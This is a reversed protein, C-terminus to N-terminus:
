VKFRKVLDRVKGAMKVMNQTNDRIITSKEFMGEAQKTAEISNEAMHKVSETTEAVNSNVEQVGNSAQAINDAIERTTTSQEEIASAIASVSENVKDIIGTTNQINNVTTSTSQQIGDIKAKIESTANATQIALEKIENAVVAFGKGAEGARAAEITANLALLNTQESIENIVDTVKGIEQVSLGLDQVQQSAAQIQAVAKSSISNASDTNQGIENITATMEEAATSVTSLNVSSQEMAAAISSINDNVSESIHAIDKNEKSVLEADKTMQLSLQGLESSSNNITVISDAIEKILIQLKEMFINFWKALDGLEDKSQIKLRRTLDGEGEAIDKLGDVVTNVIRVFSSAFWYIFPIVIILCAIFVGILMMTLQRTNAMAVAKSENESIWGTLKEGDFLPMVEQFYAKGAINIDNILPKSNKIPEIDKPLIIKNYDSLTGAAKLGNALFINIDMDALHAMRNTFDNGLIQYALVKGCIIKETKHLKPNYKNAFIPVITKICISKNIPTFSVIKAPLEPKQIREMLYPLPKKDTKNRKAKVFLDGKKIKSYFYKDGKTHLVYGSILYKDSVQQSYALLKGDQTYVSIQWLGSQAILNSLNQTLETCSNLTFDANGQKIFDYIFKVKSGISGAKIMFSVDALQKMERRKLADHIINMTNSLNKNATTRNQKQALFSVVITSCIMIIVVIVLATIILKAKLKM